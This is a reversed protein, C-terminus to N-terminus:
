CTGGPSGTRPASDRARAAAAFLTVRRAGPTGIVALRPREEPRPGGAARPVDRAGHAPRTVRGGRRLALRRRRGDAPRVPGGRRRHRRLRGAGAGGDARVPLPPAPQPPAPPHP